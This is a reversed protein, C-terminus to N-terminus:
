ERIQWLGRRAARAEDEALRYLCETYNSMTYPESEKHRAMGSRIMALNADEMKTTPLYVVGTVQKPRRRPSWVSPSVWVVVEQGGVLRELLRRADVGFPRTIDPTDVAVLHVLLEQDTPILVMRDGDIIKEDKRLIIVTNGDIVKIVKGRVPAWGSSEMTPDGCPGLPGPHQAVADTSSLIAVAVLTIWWGLSMGFKIKCFSM